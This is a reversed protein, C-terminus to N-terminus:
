ANYLTRLEERFRSIIKHCMAYSYETIKSIDKATYEMGFYMGLVEQQVLSKTSILEMVDRMVHDTYHPCATGEAQEEVFEDEAHGNEENKYDILCRGVIRGFWGNFADDPRYSKCYKLARYYAEQIIDEAAEPSGARFTLWKVFKPRNKIYHQEILIYSEM